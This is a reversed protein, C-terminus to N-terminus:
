LKEGIHGCSKIRGRFIGGNGFEVIKTRWGTIELLM